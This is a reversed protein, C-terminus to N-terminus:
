YMRVDFYSLTKTSTTVDDTGVSFSIVQNPPVSLVVSGSVQAIDQGSHSATWIGIRSTVGNITIDVWFSKGQCWDSIELRALIEVTWSRETKLTATWLPGVLVNPPLEDSVKEKANVRVNVNPTIVQYNSPSTIQYHIPTVHDACGCLKNVCSQQANVMSILTVLQEKISPLDAISSDVKIILANLQSQLLQVLSALQSFQSLLPLLTNIQLQLGAVINELEGIRNCCDVMNPPNSVGGNARCAQALPVINPPTFELVDRTDDLQIAPIVHQLDVPIGYDVSLCCVLSSVVQQQFATPVGGAIGIHIFMANFDLASYMGLLPWTPNSMKDLAIPTDTLPVTQVINGDETVVFNVSKPFSTFSGPPVNGQQLGFYAESGMPLAHLMFSVPIPVGQRGSKFFDSCKTSITLRDCNAM